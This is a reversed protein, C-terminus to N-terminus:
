HQLLAMTTTIVAHELTMVHAQRTITVLWGCPRVTTNINVDRQKLDQSGFSVVIPNSHLSSPLHSEARRHHSQVQISHLIISIFRIM